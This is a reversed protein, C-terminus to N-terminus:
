SSWTLEPEVQHRALACLNTDNHGLEAAISPSDDLHYETTQIMTPTGHSWSDLLKCCYSSAEADHEARVYQFTVHLHQVCEKMAVIQQM